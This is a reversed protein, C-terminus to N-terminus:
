HDGIDYTADITTIDAQLERGLSLWPDADGSITGSVDLTACVQSLHPTSLPRSSESHHGTGLVLRDASIEVTVVWGGGDYDDSWVSFYSANCVPCGWLINDIAEIAIAVAMLQEGSQTSSSIGWLSSRVEELVGEVEESIRPSM